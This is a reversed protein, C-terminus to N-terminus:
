LGVVYSVGTLEDHDLFAIVEQGREFAANGEIHLTYGDLTGGLQQVRLHRPGEAGFYEFVRLETHTYIEGKPGRADLTYRDVVEARVVYRSQAHLEEISLQEVVTASGVYPWALGIAACIFLGPAFTRSRRRM